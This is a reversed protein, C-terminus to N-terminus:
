RLLDKSLTKDKKFADDKEIKFLFEFFIKILFLYLFSIHCCCLHISRYRFDASENQRGGTGKDGFVDGYFKTLGM